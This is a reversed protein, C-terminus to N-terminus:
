ILLESVATLNSICSASFYSETYTSMVMSRLLFSVIPVTCLGGFSCAASSVAKYSDRVKSTGM